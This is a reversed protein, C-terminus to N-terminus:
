GNEELFYLGKIGYDGKEASLSTNHEVWTNLEDTNDFSKAVSLDHCVPLGDTTEAEEVYEGYCNKLFLEIFYKWM